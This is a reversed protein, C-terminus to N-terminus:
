KISDLVIKTIEEVANECSIETYPINNDKLMCKTEDDIAKADNANQLRGEIQYTDPRNIFFLMNNFTNYQEVVLDNFYKSPTKNYLISVLLPSDTIIVDVKDKLRFLKHYQKGFIYLQDDLVKISDEWVKDKAFELALECNIGSQKLKYFIGSACTSKGSGPGGILNVVITNKM